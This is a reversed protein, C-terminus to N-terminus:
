GLLFSSDRTDLRHYRHEKTTDRSLTSFDSFLLLGSIGAGLWWFLWQNFPWGFSLKQEPFKELFNIEMVSSINGWGVGPWKNKEITEWALSNILRRAGDSYGLRDASQDFQQWDYVMYAWKQQITPFLLYGAGIALLIFFLILFM